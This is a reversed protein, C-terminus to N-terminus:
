AFVDGYERQPNVGPPIPVPGKQSTRSTVIDGGANVTPFFQSRTIRVTAEAQLVRAAAIKIDWSNTLAEGIYAILRPDQFTEWWGLDAFSNQGASASANTDTAARRYAGPVDSGPRKYDPGVACGALFLATVIPVSSLSLLAKM